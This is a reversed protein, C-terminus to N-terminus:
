NQWLLFSAWRMSGCLQPMFNNANVQVFKAPFMPPVGVVRAEFQPFGKVYTFATFTKHNM